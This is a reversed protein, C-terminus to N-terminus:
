SSSSDPEQRANSANALIDQFFRENFGAVFTFVAVYALSTGTAKPLVLVSILEARIVFFTVLGFIGGVFPRLAGFAVIMKHGAQANLDLTGKTMRQLVSVCAGVAGAALGIGNIAQVHGLAFIGAVAACVVVMLVAGLAIGRAYRFQAAREVDREFQARAALLQRKIIEIDDHIRETPPTSEDHDESRQRNERAIATQIQCVVGFLQGLLDRRERPNTIWRRAEEALAHAEQMLSRPAGWEFRVTRRLIFTDLRDGVKDEDGTHLAVGAGVDEQIGVQVDKHEDKYAALLLPYFYEGVARTAEDKTLRTSAMVKAEVLNALGVSSDDLLKQFAAHSPREDKTTAAQSATPEANASVDNLASVPDDLLARVTDSSGIRRYSEHGGDSLTPTVMCPMLM